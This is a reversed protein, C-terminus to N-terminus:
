LLPRFAEFCREGVGRPEAVLQVCRVAGVPGAGSVVEAYRGVEVVGADHGSYRNKQRRLM